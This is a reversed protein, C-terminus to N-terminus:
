ANKQLTEAARSSVYILHFIPNIWPNPKQWALIVVCLPSLIQATYPCFCPCSFFSSYYFFLLALPNLEKHFAPPLTLIQQHPPVVLSFCFLPFITNYKSHPKMFSLSFVHYCFCLRPRPQLALIGMRWLVRKGSSPYTWVLTRKLVIQYYFARRHLHPVVLLLPIHAFGMIIPFTM